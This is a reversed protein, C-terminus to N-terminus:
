HVLLSSSSWPRWVSSLQPQPVVVKPPAPAVPAQPLAPPVVSSRDLKIPEPIVPLQKTTTTVPSLDRPSISSAVPSSMPSSSSSSSSSIASYHSDRSEAREHHHAHTHAHAHAHTHTMPPKSSMLSPMVTVDNNNLDRYQCSTQNQVQQQHHHNHHNQQQQQQQQQQSHHHHQQLQSQQQQQHQQQQLAVANTPIVLGSVVQLQSLNFAPIVPVGNVSTMSSNLLAQEPTLMTPKGPLNAAPTATPMQLNLPQTYSAHTPTPVHVAPHSAVPNAPEQHIRHVCAGLHQMLRGRTDPSLGDVQSLYRTVEQACESFGARYKGVVTSDAAAAIALQQRQVSRLHKVTM